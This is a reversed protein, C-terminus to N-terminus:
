LLQDQSQNGTVAASNISSAATAVTAVPSAAHSQGDTVHHLDPAFSLESNNSHDVTQGLENIHSSLRVALQKGIRGANAVFREQTGILVRVPSSTSIGTTVVSGVKLSGLEKMRVQFPPLQAAVPVKTIRLSHEAIQRNAAQENPSGSVSRLRRKGGNVFFKDLASFPLAIRIQSKLDGSITDITAVLMPDDRNSGQLLLDPISEFAATAFSLSLHDAWVEKLLDAIRDVASRMALREVMSLPRNAIVSKGTGGFLKDILFFSLDQGFDVVAQQDAAENINLIFSACPVSLSRTFDGQSLQEVSILRLELQSRIRGIIWTELSKSMREFMAELIRLREKSVRHPRRFDYVQISTDNSQHELEASQESM